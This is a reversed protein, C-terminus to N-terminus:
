DEVVTWLPREPAVASEAITIAARWPALNNIPAASHITLLRDGPTVRDNLSVHVIAGVEPRIFDAKTMRGGGLAVVARALQAPDIDTVTGSANALIDTQHTAEPLRALDGGQAAVWEHFKAAAAGSALVQKVQARANAENQGTLELAESALIEALALLRQGRATASSPNELLARAEAVELANGIAAGLPEDMDTVLTRVRLRAATGVKRLSSALQRADEITPMFAGRGFKVDLLLHDCGGAIKKSLISATILPISEVTATVDRLAYLVRDAPALDQTQAGLAFGIRNAQDRLADRTLQTQFGPISELKDITGGTIGLGRGSLKVTTLGCAAFIPGLLLTMKDGVGGTSHKDLWPRPLGEMPIRTGSEAMALTLDATESETLPRLYAAMLWASLQYDPISADRAGTCLLDFEARSHVQGDRRRRILDIANM